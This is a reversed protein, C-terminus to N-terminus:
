YDEICIFNLYWQSASRQIEFVVWRVSKFNPILNKEYKWRAIFSKWFHQTKTSYNVIIIILRWYTNHPVAAWPNEAVQFRNKKDSPWYYSNVRPKDIFIIEYMTRVGISWNYKLRYFACWYCLGICMCIRNILYREM